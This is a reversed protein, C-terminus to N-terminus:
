DKESIKTQLTTSKEMTPIHNQTEFILSNPTLTKFKIDDEVYTLPRQEFNSGCRVTSGM